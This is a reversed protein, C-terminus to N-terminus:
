LRYQIEVVISTIFSIIKGMLTSFLIALFMLVAMGLITAIVMVFNKGLSYDHTLMTGFFLLLGAWIFAITNFLTLIGAENTVLVNSLLTMPIIFLPLPLLAFCSATFVDGFSGEGDFLTTLCWNSIVWLMLPVVVSIITGFIDAFVVEGSGFIYGTGISQYFFGLITLILILFASRPSGRQEHKLDWFGDFPHMMVHFGYILEEKINKQGVKLSTKKNKKAAYGAFKAIGVFVAVLVVPITWFWKAAWTKRVERFATSYDGVDYASRYYDMASEYDGSRYLSQGIGIYALDFNNNRKLIEKWDDVAKDYIRDNDNKLAAILIDGYETRRFVTFSKNKADLLLLKDGQYVIGNLGDQSINGVQNGNDGFAFLLNGEDDYTFVKSRKQDIISWTGEPGVAADVIKSPGTISATASNDIKVEGSPPYFGNRPLVDIGTANFKKVPANTGGKERNTIANQQSAEDISSTTVYIFDNKDIAINNYETAVYDEQYRNQKDSRFQQWIIDLATVTVKQAGICGYFAGTDSMVIVGETTTSSVIFLRGYTDVAVAVPKYISDEAFMGSVPESIIRIFKGDRDFMVIRNNDTDCVFINKENIFVGSPNAFSDPVGQENIFDSITFKLKYYSDLVVVKAGAGDVIYVNNDPDVEIDRPDSVSISMYAADVYADPVYADPSELVFGTSSYTYTAYPATAAVAVPLVTLILLALALIILTRKM